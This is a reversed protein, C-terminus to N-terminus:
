RGMGVEIALGDPFAMLGLTILFFVLLKTLRGFQSFM